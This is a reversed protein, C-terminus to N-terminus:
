SKSKLEEATWTMYKTPKMTYSNLPPKMSDIIRKMNDNYVKKRYEYEVPKPFSLKQSQLYQEFTMQSAVTGLLLMLVIAAVSREFVMIYYIWPFTGRSCAM